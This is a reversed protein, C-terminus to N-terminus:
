GRNGELEVPDNGSEKQLRRHLAKLRKLIAANTQDETVRKYPPRGKHAGGELRKLHRDILKLALETDMKAPDIEVETVGVPIPASGRAREILMAELTAYGAHLARDWAEAFAPDRRRLRHAVNAAKGIAACSAAVNCTVALHDLFAAKDGKTWSGKRVQRVQLNGHRDTSLYTEPGEDSDTEM